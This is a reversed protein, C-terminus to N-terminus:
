KWNNSFGKLLLLKISMVTKRGMQGGGESKDKSRFYADMINIFLSFKVYSYKLSKKELWFQEKKLPQGQLGAM